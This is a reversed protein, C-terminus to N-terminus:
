RLATNASIVEGIDAGGGAVKAEKLHKAGEGKARVEFLGGDSEGVLKGGRGKGEVGVTDPDGDEGTVRVGMVKPLLTADGRVADLLETWILVEPGGAGSAGTPRAALHM